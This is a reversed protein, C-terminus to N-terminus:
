ADHAEFGLYGLIASLHIHYETHVVTPIVGPLVGLEQLAFIPAAQQCGDRVLQLFAHEHSESSAKVRCDHVVESSQHPVM